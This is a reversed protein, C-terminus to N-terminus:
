FKKLWDKTTEIQLSLNKRLSRQRRPTRELISELKELREEVDKKTARVLQHEYATASSKSHKINTLRYWMDGLIDEIECVRDWTTPSIFGKYIVIDGVNFTNTTENLYKKIKELTKM